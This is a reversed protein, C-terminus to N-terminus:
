SLNSKKNNKWNKMKELNKFEEGFPHDIEKTYRYSEIIDANLPERKGCLNCILVKENKDRSPLMMGGCDKCFEVM